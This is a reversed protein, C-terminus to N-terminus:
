LYQKIEDVFRVVSQTETKLSHMIVDRYTNAICRECGELFATPEAQADTVTFYQDQIHFRNVMLDHLKSEFQNTDKAQDIVVVSKINRLSLLACHFYQTVTLSSNALVTVWEFPNLDYLFASAHTNPKFLSIIQHSIGYKQKVVNSIDDNLLMLSVYPKDMDFHYKQKLREKVAGSLEFCRDIDIYVTPDCTHVIKGEAGYLKAFRETNSDRVGLLKFQSLSETVYQKQEDTISLYDMGHVSAAYTFIPIKFSHHLYFASPYGNQNWNLIADSGVVVADYNSEIYAYLNSLSNSNISDSLQLWGSSTKFINIKYIEQIFAKVGYYKLARFANKTIKRKEAPALYDIIEVKYEPFCKQLHVSLSYAQM